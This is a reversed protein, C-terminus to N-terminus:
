RSSSTKRSKNYIPNKKMNYLMSGNSVETEIHQSELEELAERDKVDTVIAKSVFLSHFDSARIDHKAIGNKQCYQVMEGLLHIHAYDSGPVKLIDLCQRIHGDFRM